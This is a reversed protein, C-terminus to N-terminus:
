ADVGTGLGEIPIPRHDRRTHNRAAVARRWANNEVGVGTDLDGPVTIAGLTQRHVVRLETDTGVSTITDADAPLMGERRAFSAAEAASDVRLKSLIKHVYTRATQPSILLKEAITRNDVGSGLLSLVERERPTLEASPGPAGM